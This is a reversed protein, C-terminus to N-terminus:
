RYTISVRTNDLCLHTSPVRCHPASSRQFHTCVVSTVVGDVNSLPSVHYYPVILTAFQTPPRHYTTFSLQSSYRISGLARYGRQLTTVHATPPLSACTM